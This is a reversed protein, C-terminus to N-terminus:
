DGEVVGKVLGLLVDRGYESEFETLRQRMYNIEEVTELPGCDGQYDVIRVVEEDM